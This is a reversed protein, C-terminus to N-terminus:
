SLNINYIDVRGIVCAISISITAKHIIIREYTSIFVIFM